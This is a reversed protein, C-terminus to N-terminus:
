SPRSDSPFASSLQTARRVEDSRLYISTTAVSAHRLNDRVSLLEAGRNLAHTAHTHRMWHTSAAGLRQAFGEQPPDLKLAASAITEFLRRMVAWLRSQSIGAEGELESVVSIATSWREPDPSIGRSGLYSHLAALGLPPLAVRGEKGGKGKVRLWWDGSNDLGVRDLTLGVLEEARLGTAYGFDLLFRARVAAQPKWGHRRELDNAITRILSWEGETFVHSLDIVRSKDVGRVKVGSFPNALLYRQDVLWGFLNKIVTLAYAISSLELAGTFPRWDADTRKRKPGVWRAKPMPDRLFARYAIADETTLSSLPKGLQVVAWLLVREAEKRYARQTAPSEHLTLWARIAELDNNAALVCSQAPARNRGSSGDLHQRAVQRELPQVDQVEDRRVLARARETLEPNAGFFEEIHAALASGLGPISRYWSRSRPIRLTLEALTGIDAAKLAKVAEPKFWRDVEDGIQPPALPLARLLEIARDLASLGKAGQGACGAILQALDDRGRVRAFQALDRRIESLVERAAGGPRVREPVYQAVAATAAVGQQRARVAAIAGADPFDPNHPRISAPM